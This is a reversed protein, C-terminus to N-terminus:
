VIADKENTIIEANVYFEKAEELLSIDLVRSLYTFGDFYRITFSSEQILLKVKM